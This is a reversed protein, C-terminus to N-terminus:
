RFGFASSNPSVSEDTSFSPRNEFASSSPSSLRSSDTAVTDGDTSADIDSGSRTAAMAVITMTGSSEVTSTTACDTRAATNPIPAAPKNTPDTTRPPNCSDSHGVILGSKQQM